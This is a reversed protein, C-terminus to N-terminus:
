SWNFCNKLEVMDFPLHYFNIQPFDNSPVLGFLHWDAFIRLAEFDEQSQHHGGSRIYIGNKSSVKLFDYIPQTALFAVATGKPNAWEDDIGETRLIPRPAVLGMLFHQDFPLEEERGAWNEFEAHTWSWWRDRSTLAALDECGKDLALYSGAGACGSGAPNVLAFRDDIGGALLATKGNRSHGSVMIRRSDVEPLSLAYDLLRIAGWAWVSISGWTYDLSLKQYATRAPGVIPKGMEMPELQNNQYSLIAYGNDLLISMRDMDSLDGVYILVPLGDQGFNNAIKKRKEIITASPRYFKVDLDFSIKTHRKDPVFSFRLQDCHHKNTIQQSNVTDVHVTDPAPPITGYQLDLLMRCIEFRRIEWDGLNSAIRGDSFLFPNPLQKILRM